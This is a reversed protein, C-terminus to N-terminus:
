FTRNVVARVESGQFTYVEAGSPSFTLFQAIAVIEVSSMIYYVVLTQERETGHM